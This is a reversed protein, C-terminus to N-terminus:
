NWEPIISKDNLYSTKIMALRIETNPVLQLALVLPRKPNLPQNDFESVFLWLSLPFITMELFKWSRFEGLSADSEGLGHFKKLGLCAVQKPSSWSAWALKGQVLHGKGIFLWAHSLNLPELFQFFFPFICFPSLSSSFLYTSASAFRVM